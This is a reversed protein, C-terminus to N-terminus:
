KAKTMKSNAQKVPMSRSYGAVKQHTGNGSSGNEAPTYDIPCDPCGAGPQGKLHPFQRVPHKTGM